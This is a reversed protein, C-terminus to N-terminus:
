LKYIKNFKYAKNCFISLDLASFIMLSYTMWLVTKYLVELCGVKMSTDKEDLPRLYVPVPLNKMKNDGQGGNAVQAFFFLYYDSFSEGKFVHVIKM